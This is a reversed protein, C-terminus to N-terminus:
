PGVFGCESCKYEVAIKRCNGCRIIKGKGCKPCNFTTSENLNVINKKCSVCHKTEVMNIGGIIRLAFPHNLFSESYEKKFAEWVM